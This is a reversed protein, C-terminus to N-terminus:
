LLILKQSSLFYYGKIEGNLQSRMILNTGIISAICNVYYSIIIDKIKLLILM